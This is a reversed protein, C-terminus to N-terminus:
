GSIRYPTWGASSDPITFDDATVTKLLYPKLPLNDFVMSAVNRVILGDSVMKHGDLYLRAQPLYLAHQDCNVRGRLRSNVVLEPAVGDNAFMIHDLYDDPEGLPELGIPHVSYGEKKLRNPSKLLGDSLIKEYTPLTTSHILFRSDSPRISSDKYHTKFALNVDDKSILIIKRSHDTEYQIFDAFLENFFAYQPTMSVSYCGHESRQQFLMGQVNEDISLITWTRDYKGDHTFPNDDNMNYDPPAIYIQM